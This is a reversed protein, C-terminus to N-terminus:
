AAAASGTQRRSFIARRLCRQRRGPTRSAPLPVLRRSPPLTGTGHTRHCPAGRGPHAGGAYGRVICVRPRAPPQRAREGCSLGPGRQWSGPRCASPSRPQPVPCSWAPIPPRSVVWPLSLRRSRLGLVWGLGPHPREGARQPWPLQSLGTAGPRAGAWGTSSGGQPLPFYGLLAPLM